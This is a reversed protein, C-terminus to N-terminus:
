CHTSRLSTHMLHRVQILTDQRYCLTKLHINQVTFLLIFSILRLRFLQFDGLKRCAIEEFFNDCNQTPLRGFQSLDGLRAVSIRLCFM